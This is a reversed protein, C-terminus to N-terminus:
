RSPSLFFKVQEELNDAKQIKASYIDYTERMEAAMFKFYYEMRGEMAKKFAGAFSKAHDNWIIIPHYRHDKLIKNMILRGVRGNGDIFPHIREFRYHFTFALEPAYWTRNAAKYWDLLEQLEDKIKEWPLVEENHVVVKEQRLGHKVPEHQLLIRHLKLINKLTLKFHANVFHLAQITNNVEENKRAGSQVIKEVNERPVRSGEIKNSNYIFDVLFATEMASRGTEGLSEKGRYLRSRLEEIKELSVYKNFKDHHLKESWYEVRLRGEEKILVRSFEAKKKSIDTPVRINGLSKTKPISKGKAIFIQDHAYLYEKGKIRTVYTKV